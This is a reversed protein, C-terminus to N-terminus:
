TYYNHPHFNLKTRLSCERLDITNRPQHDDTNQRQHLNTGVIEQWYIHIQCLIILLDSFCFRDDELSKYIRSYSNTQQYTTSYSTKSLFYNVGKMQNGGLLAEKLVKSHQFLKIQFFFFILIAETLVIYFASAPIYAINHINEHENRCVWRNLVLLDMEKNYCNQEFNWATDAPLRLNLASKWSKNRSTLPHINIVSKDTKTIKTTSVWIVSFSTTTQM